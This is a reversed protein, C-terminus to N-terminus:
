QLEKLQKRFYTVNGDTHFKSMGYGELVRESREPENATSDVSGIMFVCGQDNVAREAIRDAIQSAAYSKRHEPSVYIDTIYVVKIGQIEEYKYIAFGRDDKEVFANEREYLYKEYMDNM